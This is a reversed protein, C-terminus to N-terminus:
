GGNQATLEITELVIRDEDMAEIPSSITLREANAGDYMGVMLRYRGAPAEPDIEITHQDVVIQGPSWGTTLFTGGVPQGDHQGWIQEASDAFHVFVTYDTDVPVLARWYLTLLMRHGPAVTASDEPELRYGVLELGPGLKIGSGVMGEQFALPTQYLQLQLSGIAQEDVLDTHRTLWRQVHGEPDWPSGPNPILWVRRYAGALKELARNTREEPSYAAVPLLRAPLDGEYYYQFGPDPYDRVIVDGETAHADISEVLDRWSPSKAYAPDTYYNFTSWVAGVLIVV